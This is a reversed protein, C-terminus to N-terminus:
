IFNTNAYRRPQNPESLNLPNLEKLGSLKNPHNHFRKLQLKLKMKERIIHISLDNNIVQTPIWWPVDYIHIRTSKFRKRIHIDRAM